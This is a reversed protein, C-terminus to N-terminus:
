IASLTCESGSPAPQDPNVIDHIMCTKFVAQIKHRDQFVKLIDMQREVFFVRLFVIFGKSIKSQIFISSVTPHTSSATQQM